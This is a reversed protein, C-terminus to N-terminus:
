YAVSLSTTLGRGPGNVSSGHVRYAADFVNEAAVYFTFRESYRYGARLDLTLFAPTGGDPIRPDGLDSPALRRQALSWRIGLGGYLGEPRQHWRGEFTGSPPPIRSLPVRGEDEGSNTNPGEGWAYSFTARAAFGHPMFVTAAAEAGRINADGSANVLQYRSWSAVCSPTEPPCADAERVARTIAQDLQTYFGSVTAEIWDLTVTTGLEYTTTREAGLGANEFQFGPGAQQRSTLDDLNPARFGQDVDVNIHLADLPRFEVGARGVPAWWNRHVAETGSEPDSNARAGVASARGGLRLVLWSSPALEAEAFSGISVYTSGDIYQGRSREFELDVDTFSQWAASGVQDRYADAGYQFLLSADNGLDYERTKAALALGLTDVDDRFTHQVFSRPRDQLRREHHRQYSLILSLDRIHRGADGRLSTYALTRYQEEIRLCEDAPAEVPPCQDTRPADMQRYGYLATIVELKGSLNQRFRGDFTAERFGTGLQTRQDDDFRPVMPLAMGPNGVPGGSELQGVRRYGGGVVAATSHTLQAGVEARGGLESDATAARASLRPHVTVDSQEADISPDLPVAVIAGGLADSGYRTSASGRLVDIRALTQSDISFFYQNPGQRYIGNNLRIGDFVHVVQQGTMGRVYPSAQGHATQQISVGPEYRLADPASRPLREDMQRRTVTSTDPALRTERGNGTTTGIAGYDGEPVTWSETSAVAEFDPVTDERVGERDANSPPTCPGTRPARDHDSEDCDPWPRPEDAHDGDAAVDPHHAQAAVGPLPQVAICTLVAVALGPTIGLCPGATGGAGRAGGGGHHRIDM